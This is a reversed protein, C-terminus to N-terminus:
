AHGLTSFDEDKNEAIGFHVLCLPNGLRSNVFTLTFLRIVPGYSPDAFTAVPIVGGADGGLAALLSASLQVGNTLATTSPVTQEGYPTVILHFGLNARPTFGVQGARAELRLSRGRIEYYAGSSNGLGPAQVWGAPPSTVNNAGYVLPNAVPKAQTGMPAAVCIDIYPDTDPTKVVYTRLIM